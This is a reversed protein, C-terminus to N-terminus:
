TKLKQHHHHDDFVAAIIEDLSRYQKLTVSINKNYDKLSTKDAKSSKRKSKSRARDTQILEAATVEVALLSLSLKVVNDTLDFVYKESIVLFV